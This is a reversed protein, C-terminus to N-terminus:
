RKCLHGIGFTHICINPDKEVLKSVERQNKLDIDGDTLLFIRKLKNDFPTTNSQDLIM